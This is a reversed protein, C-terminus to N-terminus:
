VHRKQNEYREPEASISECKNGESFFHIQPPLSQMFIFYPVLVSIKLHNFLYLRFYRFIYYVLTFAHYEAKEFSTYIYLSVYFTRVMDMLSSFSM